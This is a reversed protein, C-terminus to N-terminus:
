HECGACLWVRGPAQPHRRPKPGYRGGPRDHPPDAFSSSSPRALVATLANKRTPYHAGSRFAVTYLRCKGLRAVGSCPSVVHLLGGPRRAVTQAHCIDPTSPIFPCAIFPGRMDIHKLGTTRIGASQRGGLLRLTGELSVDTTSTAVIRIADVVVWWVNVQRRHAFRRAGSFCAWSISWILLQNGYASLMARGPLPSRIQVYSM